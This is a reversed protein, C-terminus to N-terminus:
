KFYPNFKQEDAVTTDPGHGPLIATEPPLQASLSRLSQIIDNFRGEEFDTRGISMRFLTDGSFAVKETECYLVVSGPSHGPTGIISFAHTGFAVTDGASFFKGVPPIEEEYTMGVFAKAQWRLSKMLKKDATCVEPLLGYETHIFNNGFNHDIHGHTCVLHKPTLNNDKIYESIAKREEPYLAGCDVIVCEHTDDSVVYCNEQFM